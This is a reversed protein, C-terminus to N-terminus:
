VPSLFVDYENASLNSASSQQLQGSVSITTEFLAHSDALTVINIAGVVVANKPAATIPIPGAAPAGFVRVVFGPRKSATFNVAM